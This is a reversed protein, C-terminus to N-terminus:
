AKRQQEAVELAVAHREGAVLGHFHKMAELVVPKAEWQLLTPSYSKNRRATELADAAFQPDAILQEPTLKIRKKFRKAIAEASEPAAYHLCLDDSYTPM